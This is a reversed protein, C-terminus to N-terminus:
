VFFAAFGLTGNIKSQRTVRFSNEQLTTVSQVELFPIGGHVLIPNSKRHYFPRTQFLQNRNAFCSGTSEGMSANKKQGVLLM